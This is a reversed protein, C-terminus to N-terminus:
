KECNKLTKLVRELTSAIYIFENETRECIVSGVRGAMRDLVGVIEKLKDACENVDSFYYEDEYQNLSDYLHYDCESVHWEDGVDDYFFYERVTNGECEGFGVIEYIKGKTLDRAYPSESGGLYVLREGIKPNRYLM